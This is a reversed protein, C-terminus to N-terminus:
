RRLFLDEPRWSSRGALASASVVRGEPVGADRLYRPLARLHGRPAGALELLGAYSLVDGEPLQDVVWLVRARLDEPVAPFSPEDRAVEVGDGVALTGSRVVVCLQGRRRELARRVALSPSARACVECRHVVRLLADDGAALVTGSPLDDVAPGDVVVNAQLAAVPLALDAAVSASAVLM